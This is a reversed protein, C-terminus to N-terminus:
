RLYAKFSERCHVRLNHLGGASERVLADYQAKTNRCSDTGIRCRTMGAMSHEIVRRSRSILRNHEQQEPTRAPGKAQQQPPLTKGGDPAYGQVGPAHAVAPNEPYTPKAEDM